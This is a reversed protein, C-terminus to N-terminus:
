DKVLWALAEDRTKFSPFDRLAYSNMDQRFDHPIDEVGIWASKKVYPKDFVATEKMARLTEVDFAAGTFDVFILVSRLPQTSVVDPVKRVVDAVTAAPCHSVDVAVIRKGQHDIFRIRGDPASRKTGPSTDAVM